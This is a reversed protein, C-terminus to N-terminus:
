RKVEMLIDKTGTIKIPWGKFAKNQNQVFTKIYSKIKEDSEVWNHENFFDNVNIHCGTKISKNKEGIVRKNQWLEVLLHFPKKGGHAKHKKGKYYFTCSAEEFEVDGERDKDLLLSALSNDKLVVKAFIPEMGCDEEESGRYRDMSWDEGGEYDDIDGSEKLLHLVTLFDSFGIDVKKLGSPFIDLTDESTGFRRNDAQVELYYKLLSLVKKKDESLLDM